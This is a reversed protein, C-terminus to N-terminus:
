EICNDCVAGKVINREVYQVVTFTDINKGCVYCKNFNPKFNESSACGFITLIFLVLLKKM